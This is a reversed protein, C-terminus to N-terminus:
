RIEIRDLMVGLDRLDKDRLMKSPSWTRTTLRLEAADQSGAMADALDPPIPFRYPELGTGVTVAGLTRGNLSVEVDAPVASPPRGGKGMWLSLVQRGPRTGVISVYSVDRTWRFTLGNPGQEKAHFHRVFLDDALGVDLQFGDAAVPRPLLQYLSIDFEKFRVTRPYANTASEYEPIQFRQGSVAQATMTQSLLETGGAGLFFVRRYRTLSWNLFERFVVKDPDTEAFVIVKRAYIYSLPLALVHTDSGARSEVLVLDDDGFNAALQELRPILGAYEVHRLIPQTATLFHRALLLVLVLGATYRVARARPGAPWSTGGIRVSGFAAAGALLSASPLIVAVVRRAAWFHEPIIRIKYFGFFAATAVALLFPVSTPLCTAVVAFGVLAAALGYATFYFSAFTRLSDADQVALRGEQVRFFFAYVAFVWIAAVLGLALWRVRDAIPIRRAAFWLMAGAIAAAGLLVLQAPRLLFELPVAFYPPIYHALYAAALGTGGVLPLWFSWRASRANFPVIVAALAVAAVTLAGTVHTFLSLVLLLAAVPAFFRDDDAQARVYALLGAFVLPQMAMEANPYRSYWVQVVNLALLGAGAAAAGHGVIRVGLFYVAVLGLVAWVGLVQRAGSLGNIGYAIAISAPYVHPFQGVVTGAGPELLFFGMFRNSYYSPDRSPNFFLSRFPPPISSVVDDRIVLTGRQAIQVGENMYVGPDKGGMIYEAPPVFASIWLGGVILGVPILATWTPSPASAGLRLRGRLWGAILLSTGGNTWILREFRYWGAAALGLTVIISFAASFITAWFAREEAPL